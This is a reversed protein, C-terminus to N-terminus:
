ICENDADVLMLANTDLSAFVQCLAHIAANCGSPHSSDSCINWGFLYCREQACDNSAQQHHAVLDGRNRDTTYRGLKKDLPILRDNLVPM